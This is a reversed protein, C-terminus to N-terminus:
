LGYKKQVVKSGLGQVMMDLKVELEKIRPMVAQIQVVASYFALMMTPRMSTAM